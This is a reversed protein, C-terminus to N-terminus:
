ATSSNSRRALLAEQASLEKALSRIARRRYNYFSKEPIDYRTMIQTNPRGLVYEEYLILHHIALAKSSAGVLRLKEIFATLIVRLLQAEDLPTLDARAENGSERQATELMRSLFSALECNALGTPDNLHKLAEETLATLDRAPRPPPVVETQTGPVVDSGLSPSPSPAFAKVFVVAGYALVGWGVLWLERGAWAGAFSGGAGAYIALAFSGVALCVGLPNFFGGPWRL